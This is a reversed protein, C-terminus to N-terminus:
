TSGGLNKIFGDYDIYQSYPSANYANKLREEFTSGSAYFSTLTFVTILTSMIITLLGVTLGCFAQPPMKRRSRKQPYPDINRTYAEHARPPADPFGNVSHDSHDHYIGGTSLAPCGDGTVSVDAVAIQPNSQGTSLLAFLIALSAMCVAFPAFACTMVAITAIVASATAFPNKQMKQTINKASPKQLGM